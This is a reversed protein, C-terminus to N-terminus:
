KGLRVGRELVSRRHEDAIHKSYRFAMALTRHGLADAIEPASVGAEALYTGATHRLDHFRFDGLGVKDRVRRWAGVLSAPMEDKWGKFVWGTGTPDADHHAQMVAQADGVIPVTRADGNKTTALRFTWQELDVDAWQLFRINSYRCGTALALVVAPYLNPNSDAKCAELLRHREDDTLARGAGTGEPRKAIALVPNSQLWHREKWAWRCASSLAALYRNQTAGSIPEGARTTRKALEARFDAVAAPTLKDLTIYGAHERWWALYRAVNRADAHAKFPLADSVFMDILDALTRRRDVTTPVYAGRGLSSEVEAAWAKADTKRRFTRNRPKEGQVRVRVLFSVDGSASVRKVITAM